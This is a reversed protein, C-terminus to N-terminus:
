RSKVYVNMEHRDNSSGLLSYGYEEPNKEFRTFGEKDKAWYSSERFYKNVVIFDYRLATISEMTFESEPIFKFRTGFAFTAISAPSLCTIQPEHQIKKAEERMKLVIQHDNSQAIFYPHCLWICIIFILAIKMKFRLKGIMYQIILAIGSFLIPAIPLYYRTDPILMVMAIIMSSSLLIFFHLKCNKSLSVLYGATKGFGLSRIGMFGGFALIALIVAIEVCEGRKEYKEPIFLPRHRLLAPVVIVCNRSFNNLLFRAAEVPNNKLAEPVSKPTNFMKDLVTKYEAMASVGADKHVRVYYSAYHQGFILLSDHEIYKETRSRDYVILFVSIALLFASFCTAGSLFSKYIDKIKLFIFVLFYTLFLVFAIYYETRIQCAWLLMTMFFIIRATSQKRLLPVLGILILDFTFLNVNGFQAKPTVAYSSIWLALTIIKACNSRIMSISDLLFLMGIASVLSVVLRAIYHAYVPDSCIVSLIFKYFDLYPNISYAHNNNLHIADNIYGGEDGFPLPAHWIGFSILFM